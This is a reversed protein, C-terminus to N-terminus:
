RQRWFALRGLLRKQPQEADQKEVYEVLKESGDDALAEQILTNTDRLRECVSVAIRRVIKYAAPRRNRRLFDFEDKNIKFLSVESAAEAHATRKEGDVLAIEGLIEGPGFRALSIRGEPRDLYVDIEGSEVVYAGDGVQNEKFLLQGKPLQTPEIARLFENLEDPTLTSFLPIRGFFAQLPHSM